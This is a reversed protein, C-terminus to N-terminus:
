PGCHDEKILNFDIKMRLSLVFNGVQASINLAQTPDM